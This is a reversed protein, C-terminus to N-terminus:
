ANSVCDVSQPVYDGNFSLVGDSATVYVQLVYGQPATSNQGLGQEGVACTAFSALWSLTPPAGPNTINALWQLSLSLNLSPHAAFFSANATMAATVATPSNIIGVTPLETPLALYCPSSWTAVAVATGNVVAVDLVITENIVESGGNTVFHYFSGNTYQFLWWPAAGSALTGGFAPVGPRATSLYTISAAQPLCFLFAPFPSGPDTDSASASFLSWPAGVASAAAADALPRSQAYTLAEGPFPGTEQSPGTLVGTALLSVVVLVAVGVAAVVVILSTRRGRRALGTPPPAGPAQTIVETAGPVADAEPAPSAPM